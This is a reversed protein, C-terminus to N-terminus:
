KKNSDIVSFVEMCDSAKKFSNFQLKIEGVESTFLYNGKVKTIYYINETTYVTVMPLRRVRKYQYEGCAFMGIIYIMMGLGLIFKKM